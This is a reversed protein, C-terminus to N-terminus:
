SAGSRRPIAPSFDLDAFDVPEQGRTSAGFRVRGSYVASLGRLRELHGEVCQGVKAEKSAVRNIHEANEVM